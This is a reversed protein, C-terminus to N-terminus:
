RPLRVALRQVALEGAWHVHFRMLKGARASRHRALEGAIARHQREAETMDESTYAITSRYAEPIASVQRIAAALRGNGSSDAIRYHFETDAALQDIPAADHLQGLQECSKELLAVVEPTITKAALSAAEGELVGRVHYVEAVDDLTLELVTAGRNPTLEVLGTASLQILAERIPTRSVAYTVALSEERLRAGLPLEGGLIARSIRRAVLDATREGHLSPKRV